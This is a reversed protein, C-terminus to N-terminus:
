ADGTASDRLEGLVTALPQHYVRCVDAITEFRAMACGVCGMRRRIFVRAAAPFQDLLDDVNTSANIPEANTQM